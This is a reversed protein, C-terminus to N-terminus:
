LARCIPAIGEDNTVKVLDRKQLSLRGGDATSGCHM